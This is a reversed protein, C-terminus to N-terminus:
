EAWSPPLAQPVARHARRKLARLVHHSVLRMGTTARDCLLATYILGGLNDTISPRSPTSVYDLLLKAV